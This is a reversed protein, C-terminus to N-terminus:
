LTVVQKLDVEIFWKENGTEAKGVVVRVLLAAEIVRLLELDCLDLPLVDALAERRVPFHGSLKRSV